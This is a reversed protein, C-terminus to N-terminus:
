PVTGRGATDAEGHLKNSVCARDGQHLQTPPGPVLSPAPTLRGTPSKAVAPVTAWWVDKDM